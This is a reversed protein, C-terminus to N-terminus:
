KQACYIREYDDHEYVEKRIFKGEASYYIVVFLSAEEVHKETFYLPDEASGVNVIDSFNLPIVVGRRSSLVGFRNEQQVIILREDRSERIVSYKRIKDLVIKGSYLNYLMWNHKNKVLAVSDTWYKVESFEFEGMPKNDWRIFGLSRGKFAVLVHPTYPMINKAYEPKILKKKKCNYIGFKTGKLLSVNGDQVTGIADYEQPLLLKGDAACLGKKEKTTVIFYQLGAHQVRDATFTFMKKGNQGYLTKKKPDTVTMFALSDQGPVFEVQVPLMFTQVLKQSIHVRVTDGLRGMVFPGRFYATDYSIEALTKTLPNFMKWSKEKKIVVWPKQIKVDDGQAIVQGKRDYLTATNGRRVAGFFTPVLEGQDFPIHVRLGQDLIGQLDGARLWLLSDPWTKMEQFVESLEISKQDATAGIEQATALRIDNQSHMVVVNGADRIEDATDPLLRFGTLTWISWGNPEHLALFNGCVLKADKVCADGVTFGSKHLVFSCDGKDVLLFGNGVDEVSEIDATLVSAGRRNVIKGSLLLVDDTVNGCRLAQDIDEEYSPIAVVGNKDMFGFRNNHLFPVLYSKELQLAMRLSDDDLRNVLAERHEPAVLYYLMNRVKRAHRHNPYRGLFDEFATVTGPATRIFFIKEEAAARHPSMPFQQIFREYSELRKDHTEQEFLLQDFRQRAEAARISHPYRELYSQFGPLANKVLADQFAAEDRLNMAEDRQAALPFHDLFFLYGTETNELRAREFAASDIQERYRMLIITDLPFRKMRIRDKESALRFGETAAQIQTYASDINFGSNNPSFFYQALVYRATPSAPNKIILKSLQSHARDWRAKQLNKLATRETVIQATLLGPFAAM